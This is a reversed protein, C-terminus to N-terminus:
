IDSMTYTSVLAFGLDLDDGIGFTSLTPSFIPQWDYEVTVKIFPDDIDISIDGQTLGPLLATGSVIQGYLILNKASGEITNTLVLPEDNDIRAYLSLYRAADRVSKNLASYQYLLRGFEATAFILLLFFPLLISFEIAALGNQKGKVHQM